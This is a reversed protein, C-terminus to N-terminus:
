VVHAWARGKIVKRLYNANMGIEDGLEQYTVGGNLYRKRLDRVQGETLRAWPCESGRLQRYNPSSRLAANLRFRFRGKAMADRMNDKQTGLFLHAPNVCAPNDCHHCVFLGGEIAGNTIIWAVRHARNTPFESNTWRGYGRANKAAHWEWCEDITRRDVKSWFREEVTIDPWRSM